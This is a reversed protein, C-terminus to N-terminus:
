HCRGHKTRISYTISQGIFKSKYDSWSYVWISWKERKNTNRSKGKESCKGWCWTYVCLIRSLYHRTQKNTKPQGPVLVNRKWNPGQNKNPFHSLAQVIIANQMILMPYLQLSPSAKKRNSSPFSPLVSTIYVQISLPIICLYIVYICM